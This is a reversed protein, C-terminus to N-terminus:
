PTLDSERLFQYLGPSSGPRSLRIRGLESSLACLPNRLPNRGSIQDFYRKNVHREVSFNELLVVFTSPRHVYISREVFM